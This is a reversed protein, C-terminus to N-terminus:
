HYNQKSRKFVETLVARSNKIIKNIFEDLVSKKSQDSAGKINNSNPSETPMAPTVSQVIKPEGKSKLIQQYAHFQAYFENSNLKQWSYNSFPYSQYNLIFPTLAIIKPDTLLKEFSEKTLESVKDSLIFEPSNPSGEFHPWGTETIFVPFNKAVGLNKLLNQEWKYTYLSERGNRLIQHNGLPHPYSHSTWGDIYSFIQPDAQVMRSIFLEEDMTSSSNQAAADFGAQLIFFDASKQKLSASYSALIQAYGAPELVGGWEKAHNPENFIIVYRNETVWTLKDLFQAYEEVKSLDPRIWMSNKSETALRLIPILHLKRLENFINQWKDHNLDNQTIVLTVYGWDGGSSNVLQSANVLDNQDIIHIGYKNNPLSLPDYIAYSSNPYTLLLVFFLIFLAKKM